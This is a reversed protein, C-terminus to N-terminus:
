FALDIFLQFTPQSAPKFPRPFPLTFSYPPPEPQQQTKSNSPLPRDHHKVTKPIPKSMLLHAQHFSSIGYMSIFYSYMVYSMVHVIM